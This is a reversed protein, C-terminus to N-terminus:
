SQGEVTMTNVVTSVGNIDSALKTVLSKEAENKATGGVTVVGSKTSVSTRMTSTSRHWLLTLRVEATISADDIEQALTPGAPAKALTMQNDVSKVGEVDKAYEATLERQAENGAEGQLTVAGDKVTVTTKSASVNAHFLLAAEVKLAIWGDSRQDPQQGVIALEDDVKVVGPLSEVTEEAMPKHTPEAVTGSLTVMGNRSEVTIADDQLYKKFIYSDYAAREIRADTETEAAGVAACQTCAALTAAVTTLLTSAHPTM